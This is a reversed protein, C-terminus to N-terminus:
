KLNLKQQEISNLQQRAEDAWRSTSDIELYKKWDEGAKEELYLSEYVKARNFLGEASGPSSELSKNLLELSKGFEIAAKGKEGSLSERKGKELYLVGFDNNYKADNAKENQALDFYELAKEYNNKVLYFKGLAYYTDGNPRNRVAELLYREALTIEVTENAKTKGRTQSFPAYEFDSIRSDLPRERKYAEKLAALGNKLEANQSINWWCIGGIIVLLGVVAPVLIRFLKKLDFEWATSNEQNLLKKSQKNQQAKERLAETMRLEEERVPHALFYKEYLQKEAPLYEGDLYKEYLDSEVTLFFQYFEDDTLIQKEIEQRSAESSRNLLYDEIEIRIKNEEMMNLM